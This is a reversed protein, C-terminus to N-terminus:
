ALRETTDADLVALAHESWTIWQTESLIGALLVLHQLRQPRQRVADAPFDEAEIRRYLALQDRHLQLRRAIDDRLRTPGIVADARLRLMLENRLPKPDQSEGVWRQLEQRGAELVRYVRKRGRGSEPPLSEVWGAAELRALERYIQQHTAHWFFGISRDFRRALDVGACSQELLSTLLAHPLSM